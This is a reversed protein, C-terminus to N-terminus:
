CFVAYSIKVHSSNLRHEESRLAEVDLADDDSADAGSIRHDGAAGVERLDRARRERTRRRAPLAQEAKRAREDTRGDQEHPALLYIPLADHLSLTPTHPPPPRT